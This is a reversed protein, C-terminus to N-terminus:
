RGSIYRTIDYEGDGTVCACYTGLKTARQVHKTIQGTYGGHKM